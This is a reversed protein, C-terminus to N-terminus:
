FKKYFGIFCGFLSFLVLLVPNGTSKMTTPHYSNQSKEDAFVDIEEEEYTENNLNNSDCTLNAKNIKEGVSVALTTIYLFVEKDEISLDGIDWIGTKPNFTGKTTTHKIYKLGDPLQDFVKVNKAIGKAINIVSIKWTEYDGIHIHEKDGDNDLILYASSDSKQSPSSKQGSALVDSSNTQLESTLVDGDEDFSSEIAVTLKSTEEHNRNSDITTNGMDAAHVSSFALLSILILIILFSKKMKVGIKTRRDIRKKDTGM